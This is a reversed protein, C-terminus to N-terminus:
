AFLAGKTRRTRYFIRLTNRGPNIKNTPRIRKYMSCEFFMINDM